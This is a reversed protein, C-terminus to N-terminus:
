SQSHQATNLLDPLRDFHRGVESPRHADSGARLSIGRQLAAAIIWPVPFAKGRYDFGSTNIELAVTHEHMADLLQYILEVHEDTFRVGPLHRLVADLHCLVNCPVSCVAEILTHLYTSIVKDTGIAALQDLSQRRRSLLNLHINKYRYFHCSIGVRAFPYQTLKELIVATAEPNFGLEVGLQIEILGAFREQLRAGEQFYYTFEEDGLWSPPYYDIGTELHELFVIRALGKQVAQEVYEEMEGTAHNCLRTHVHGDEHINILPSESHNLTPSM